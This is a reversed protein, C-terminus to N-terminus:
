APRTAKVCQLGNETIVETTFGAEAFRDRARAAIQDSRGPTPGRGWCAFMAGGPVLLRRVQAFEARAPGIWFLSVNISFIKDFAGDPFGAESFEAVQVVARGDEIYSANRATTRKVATASRDIATLVGRGPALREAVLSVATGGGSGIELIRDAPQIDLREVTWRIRAGADGNLGASPSPAM